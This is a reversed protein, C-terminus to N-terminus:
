PPAAHRLRSIRRCRRAVGVRARQDLPARVVLKGLEHGIEAAVIQRRQMSSEVAGFVFPRDAEDAVRDLAEAQREGAVLVVM